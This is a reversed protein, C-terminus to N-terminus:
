LLCSKPFTLVSVTPTGNDVDLSPAFRVHISGADSDSTPSHQKEKKAKSDTGNNMNGISNIHCRKRKPTFIFEDDSSIVRHQFDIKSNTADGRLM